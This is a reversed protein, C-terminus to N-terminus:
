GGERVAFPRERALVETLQPYGCSTESRNSCTGVASRFFDFLVLSLIFFDFMLGVATLSNCFVMALVFAFLSCRGAVVRDTALADGASPCGACDLELEAPDPPTKCLRKSTIL